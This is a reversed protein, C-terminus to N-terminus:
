RLFFTYYLMLLVPAALTVGATIIAGAAGRLNEEEKYAYWGYSAVHLSITAVVLFILAYFM